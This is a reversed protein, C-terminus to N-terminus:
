RSSLSLSVPGPQELVHRTPNQTDGLVFEVEETPLTSCQKMVKVSCFAKGTDIQFKQMAIKM